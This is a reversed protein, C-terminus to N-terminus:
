TPETITVDDGRAIRGGDVVRAYVGCFTHGYALQMSRPLALDRAGSSPDVNTAACRSTAEEVRLTAAGIRLTKGVWELEHRPELGDILINSRFRMPDVSRGVVRDLDRVSALNIISLFPQKTDSYPQGRCEILKPQGRAQNGMYAAFFQEIVARGTPQSIQGCSVRRGNRHISLMGTNPDFSTKLTALKENAMVQLFFRKPMWEPNAPDLRQDGGHAIAFRRDYPIAEGARLDVQELLEASLGKVPYRYLAQVSIPM